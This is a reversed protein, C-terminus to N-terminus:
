PSYPMFMPIFMRAHFCPHVRDPLYNMVNWVYVGIWVQMKGSGEVIDEGTTQGDYDPEADPFMFPHNCCQPTPLLAASKPRVIADFLAHGVTHM